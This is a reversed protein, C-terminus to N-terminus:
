IPRTEFGFNSPKPNSSWNGNVIRPVFCFLIDDDGNLFFHNVMLPVWDVNNDLLSAM